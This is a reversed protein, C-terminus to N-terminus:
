KAPAVSQVSSLPVSLAGLQVQMGSSTNTIGSVTGVVNFPVATATSGSSGTEVAIGYAGDPLQNGNNDLGDWTWTNTGGQAQLSVDRLTTGASNVIAIQVPESAPAQFTIGGSSNQLAIQTASVTATDGVVTTSQLVESGQQLSILQTLNTNTAVSQQVGTFEVLEQTFTNDDMPQTPDQNQLQTTLLSLFQTFNSGLQQLANSGATNAAAAASTGSSSSAAAAAATQNAAAAQEAAQALSSTISGSM